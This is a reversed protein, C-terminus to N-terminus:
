VYHVIERENIDLREKDKAESLKIKIYKCTSRKPNIMYPTGKAEQIYLYHKWWNQIKM